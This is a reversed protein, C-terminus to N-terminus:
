VGGREENHFEEWPQGSCLCRYLSTHSVSVCRSFSSLYGLWAGWLPSSVQQPAAPIVTPLRKPACTKVYQEPGVFVSGVAGECEIKWDCDRLVGTLQHSDDAELRETVSSCKPSSSCGTHLPALAEPQKIKLCRKSFRRETMWVHTDPNNHTHTHTHTFTKGGSNRMGGRNELLSDSCAEPVWHNFLFKAAHFGHLNVKWNTKRNVSLRNSRKTNHNIIWQCM